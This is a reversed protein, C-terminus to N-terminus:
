VHARGIEEASSIVEERIVRGKLLDIFQWYLSELLEAGVHLIRDASEGSISEGHIARNCIELVEQLARLMRAQILDLSTLQRLVNPLATSRHGKSPDGTSAIQRLLKELEIRLKALALVKDQDGLELIASAPGLHRPAAEPKPTEQALQAEASDAIRRVEQPDIEAEFGGLKIKRIASAFPSILMLAILLISTTDVSIAAVGFTHAILLGGAITFPLWWLHKSFSQEM